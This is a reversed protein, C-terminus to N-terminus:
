PGITIRHRSTHWPAKGRRNSLHWSAKPGCPGWIANPWWLWGKMYAKSFYIPALITHITKRTQTTESVAGANLQDKMRPSGGHGQTTLFTHMHDLNGRGVPWLEILVPHRSDRLSVQLSYTLSLYHIFNRRRGRRRRWNSFAKDKEVFEKWVKRDQVCKNWNRKMLRIDNVIDNEWRIKPRGIYKSTLPKWKYLKKTM